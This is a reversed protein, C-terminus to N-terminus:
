LGLPRKAGKGKGRTRKAQKPPVPSGTSVAQVRKSKFSEREEPGASHWRRWCDVKHLHRTIALHPVANV